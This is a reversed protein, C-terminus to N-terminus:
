GEKEVELQVAVMQDQWSILNVNGVFAKDAELTLRVSQDKTTQVRVVQAKIIQYEM